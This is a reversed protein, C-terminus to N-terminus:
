KTTTPSVCAPSSSRCREKIAIGLEKGRTATGSFYFRFTSPAEKDNPALILWIGDQRKHIDRSLRHIRGHANRILRIM